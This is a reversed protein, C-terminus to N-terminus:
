HTIMRKLKYWRGNAWNVDGHIELDIIVDPCESKILGVIERYLDPDSSPFCNEDRTHIHVISAGANYAEIHYKAIEEASCPLNPNQKKSIMGGPGAALIILKEPESFREEKEFPLPQWAKWKTGVSM